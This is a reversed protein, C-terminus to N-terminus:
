ADGDEWFENLYCPATGGKPETEPQSPQASPLENLILDRLLTRHCQNPDECFCGLNIRNRQAIAALLAIVQSPETRKMEAQYRRAFVSFPIEKKRFASLLERSPGLMPLWLDFYGRAARDEKRVGRPPQRTVGISLGPLKASEGYRYIHVSM